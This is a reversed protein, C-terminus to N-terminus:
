MGVRDSFPREQRESVAATPNKAHSIRMELHGPQRLEVVRQVGVTGIEIGVGASAASNPALVTRSIPHPVPM